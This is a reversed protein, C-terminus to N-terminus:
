GITVSQGPELVHVTCSCLRELERADRETGVIDGFHIPIAHGARVDGVAGSAEKADMTYTGGVPVFMVDVSLTKMEPIRDTDGPHYFTKGDMEIVYGVWGNAKPHFAKNLNYAPVAKVNVAGIRLSGGPSVTDTVVRAAMPAVVRTSASSLAKVDQESYHDYHDHTLLIIDAKPGKPTKWPDIYVTGSPGTIRVSAHGLWTVILAM